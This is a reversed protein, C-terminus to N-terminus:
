RKEKKKKEEELLNKHHFDTGKPGAQRKMSWTM